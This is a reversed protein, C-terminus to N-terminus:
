APLMPVGTAEHVVPETTFLHRHRRGLAAIVAIDTDAHRSAASRRREIDPNDAYAHTIQFSFGSIVVRGYRADALGLAIAVAGTSPVKRAIRAAVREDGGCLGAITELYFALPRRVLREYRYGCADLSRRLFWATSRAATAARLVRKMPNGSFPERPYVFVTGTSLGRLATMALVNSPTKASALITSIVTFAPAPLGLRAASAGSANACALVDVAGAPPLAPEPKSGLVLLTKTDASVNGVDLGACEEAAPIGGLHQGGALEGACEGTVGEPARQGAREGGRHKANGPMGRHAM